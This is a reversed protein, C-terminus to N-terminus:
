KETVRLASANLKVLLEYRNGVGVARFIGTLHASVTKEASLSVCHTNGAQM